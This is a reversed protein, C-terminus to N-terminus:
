SFNWGRVLRLGVPYVYSMAYTEEAQLVAQEASTEFNHASKIGLLSDNIHDTFVQDTGLDQTFDGWSTRFLEYRSKIEEYTANTSNTVEASMSGVERLMGPQIDYLFNPSPITQAFLLQTSWTSGINVFRSPESTKYPIATNADFAGFSATMECSTYAIDHPSFGLGRFQKGQVRKDLSDGRTILQWEYVGPIRFGVNRLQTKTLGKMQTRLQCVNHSIVVRRAPVDIDYYPEYGCLLSVINCLCFLAFRTDADAINFRVPIFAYYKEDANLPSRGKHEFDSLLHALAPAYSKLYASVEPNEQPIGKEISKLTNGVIKCVTQFFLCSMPMQAIELSSLLEVVGNEQSVVPPSVYTTTDLFSGKSTLHQRPPQTHTSQAKAVLTRFPRLVGFEDSIKQYCNPTLYPYQDVAAEYVLVRKPNATFANAIGEAFYYFGFDVDVTTAVGQYSTAMKAKETFVILEAHQIGLSNTLNFLTKPHQPNKYVLCFKTTGNIAGIDGLVCQYGLATLDQDCERLCASISGNEDSGVFFVTVCEAPTDANLLGADAYATQLFDFGQATDQQKLKQSSHGFLYLRLLRDTLKKKADQNLSAKVRVPRIEYSM